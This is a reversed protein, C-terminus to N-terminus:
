CITVTVLITTHLGIDSFYNLTVLSTMSIAGALGDTM